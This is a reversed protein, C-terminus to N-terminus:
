VFLFQFRHSTFEIMPGLCLICACTMIGVPGNVLLSAVVFFGDWLIRVGKFSMIPHRRHLIVPTADYPASGLDVLMYASVATVFLVMTPIFLLLVYHFELTQPIWAHVIPFFFDASFGVLTMNALTGLGIERRGFVLLYLMMLSNLLLQWTGFSIGLCRSMGLNFSSCPDTGVGLRDFVTVCFGM